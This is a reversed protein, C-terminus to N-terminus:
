ESARAREPQKKRGADRQDEVRDDSPVNLMLKWRLHAIRCRDNLRNTFPIGSGSLIFEAAHTELLHALQIQIADTKFLKARSVIRRRFVFRGDVRVGPRSRFSFSIRGGFGLFFGLLIVELFHKGFPQVQVRRVLGGLRDRGISRVIRGASRSHVRGRFCLLGAFNGNLRHKKAADPRAQEHHQHGSPPPTSLAGDSVHGLRM